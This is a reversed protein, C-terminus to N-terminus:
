RFLCDAISYRRTRPVRVGFAPSDCVMKFGNLFAGFQPAVSDELLWKLYLDVYEQRNQNTVAINAGDPKLPHYKTEGFSEYPM